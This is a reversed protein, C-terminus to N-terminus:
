SYYPKVSAYNLLEKLRLCAEELSHTYTNIGAGSKELLVALDKKEEILLRLYNPTIELLQKSLNYFFIVSGMVIDMSIHRMLDDYKQEDNYPAITYQSRKNPGLLIPRYLVAMAKHYNDWDKMFDDLDIYEGLIMNKHLNPIFGFKKDRVTIVPVLKPQEELVTGLHNSLKIFDNRRMGRVATLSTNCFIQVMKQRLNDDLKNKELESLEKGGEEKTEYNKIEQMWLQYQELTIDKLSTPVNIKISKM